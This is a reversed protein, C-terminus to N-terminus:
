FSSIGAKLCIFHTVTSDSFGIFIKPNQKIVEIDIYKLMRISDDGGINSIIAKISPDSFAEMLDKARAEPNEYIWQAPQLAHKTEVVNLNFVQELREKGKRYRHPLEGAAGWSMSIAAVKDGPNLRQPIKLKAM